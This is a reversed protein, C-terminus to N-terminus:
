GRYTNILLVNMLNEEHPQNNEQQLAFVRYIMCTVSGDDEKIVYERIDFPDLNDFDQHASAKYWQKFEEFSKSRLKHYNKEVIVNTFLGLDQFLKRYGEQALPHLGFPHIDPDKEVDLMKEICTIALM